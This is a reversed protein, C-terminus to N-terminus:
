KRVEVAVVVRGCKSKCGWCSGKEPFVVVDDGTKIDKCSWGRAVVRLAPGRGAKAVNAELARAVAQSQGAHELYLGREREARALRRKLARNERYLRDVAEQPSEVDCGDLDERTSM